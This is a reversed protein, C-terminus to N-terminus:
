RHRSDHSNGYTGSWYMCYCICCKKLVIKFQKQKNLGAHFFRWLMWSMSMTGCARRWWVAANGVRQRCVEAQGDLWSKATSVDATQATWQQWLRGSSRKWSADNRSDRCPMWNTRATHTCWRRNSDLRESYPWKPSELRVNLWRALSWLWFFSILSLSYINDKACLTSLFIM